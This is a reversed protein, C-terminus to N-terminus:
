KRLNKLSVLNGNKDKYKWFAWGNVAGKTIIANAAATPTDYIRGNFRIGGNGKVWAKYDKRKHTAYIVKGGPFKGRLPRAAKTTKKRRKAAKRRTDRHKRDGFIKERDQEQQQKVARKLQRM